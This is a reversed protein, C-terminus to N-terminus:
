KIIRPYWITNMSFFFRGSLFSLIAEATSRQGISKEPNYNTHIPFSRVRPLMLNFSSKAICSSQCFRSSISPLPSLLQLSFSLLLFFFLFLTLSFSLSLLLSSSPLFFPLFPFLSLTFFSHFLFASFSLKLIFHFM